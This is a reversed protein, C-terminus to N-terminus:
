NSANTLPVTPNTSPTPTQTPPVFPSSTMAATASGTATWAATLTPQPEPTNPSQQTNTPSSTFTSTPVNPVWLQWGTRIINGALCNASKLNSVSTRYNVSIRTLNDGLKVTYKVWGTPQFCAKETGAPLVGTSTFTAAPTTVAPAVPPLYIITDSLVMDSILCNEVMIQELSSGRTEALTRLDDSSSVTYIVWGSPRPCVAPRTPRPVVIVPRSTSVHSAEPTVFAPLPTLNPAPLTFRLTPTALQQPISELLGLMLAGIVLAGTALAGVM